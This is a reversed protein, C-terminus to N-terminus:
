CMYGPVARDSEAGAGVAGPSTVAEGGGPSAGGKPAGGPPLVLKPVAPLSLGDPGYQEEPPPILALPVGSSGVLEGDSDCEEPREIMSQVEVNLDHEALAIFLQSSREHHSRLAILLAHASAHLGRPLDPNDLSPPMSESYVVRVGGNWVLVEPRRLGSFNALRFMSNRDAQAFTTFSLRITVLRGAPTRKIRSGCKNRLQNLVSGLQQGESRLNAASELLEQSLDM